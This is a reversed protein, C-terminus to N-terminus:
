HAQAGCGVYIRQRQAMGDALVRVFGYAETTDQALAYTVSAKTGQPLKDFSCRAREMAIYPVRIGGAPRYAFDSREYVTIINPHDSLNALHEGEEIFSRRSFADEYDALVKIAREEAHGGSTFTAPYVQGFGGSGLNGEQMAYGEPLGAALSQRLEHGPM